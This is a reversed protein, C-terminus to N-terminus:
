VSGGKKRRSRPPRGQAFVKRISEKARERDDRRLARAMERYDAALTRPDGAMLHDFLHAVREYVHRVSNHLLVFARNGGGRLLAVHLDFELIQMARIDHDSAETATSFREVAEDLKDLAETDFTGIASCCIAEGIVVRADLLDLFLEGDGKEVGLLCVLFEVGATALYDQVKVGSGQRIAVLRIQELQRLAERITNRTVQFNEALVREPPLLDGVKFRGAVISERIIKAVRESARLVKLPRFPSAKDEQIFQSM